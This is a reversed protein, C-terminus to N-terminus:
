PILQRVAAAPVIFMASMSTADRVVVPVSVSKGQIVYVPSSAAVNPVATARESM